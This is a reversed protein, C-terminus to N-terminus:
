LHHPHLVHLYVLNTSSVLDPPAKSKRSTLCTKCFSRSLNSPQAIALWLFNQFSGWLLPDPPEPQHCASCSDATHGTALFALQVRPHMLGLVAVPCPSPDARRQHLKPQQLTLLIYFQQLPPSCLHHLTQLVLHILLPQPAQTQEAWLLPPQPRM